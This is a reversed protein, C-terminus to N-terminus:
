DAEIGDFFESPSVGLGRIVRFLAVISINRRSNEVDSLFSRDMDISNAFKEVGNPKPLEGRLQRIRKGVLTKVHEAYEVQEGALDTM